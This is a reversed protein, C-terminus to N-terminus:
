GNQNLSDGLQGVGSTYTTLGSSFTTLVMMFNDLERYSTPVKEQVQHLGTGLQGVGNTYALLGTSLTQAGNSFSLSSNSLTTLHDTLTQGGEKLQGAGTALKQSGEAATGMGTKLSGMKEFLASTYTQTVNSAVTQQIKIMASDSMKGAIFSHGSSTQYDIKMQQPNDTLVSAARESLDSPLTVVM